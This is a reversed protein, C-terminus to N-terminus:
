FYVIGDQEQPLVNCLSLQIILTAITLAVPASPSDYHAEADERGETM